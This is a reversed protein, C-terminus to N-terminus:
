GAAHAAHEPAQVVFVSVRSWSRAPAPQRQYGPCAPVVQRLGSPAGSGSATAVPLGDVGGGPSSSMGTNRSRRGQRGVILTCVVRDLRGPVAVHKRQPVCGRCDNALPNNGFYDSRARGTVHGAARRRFQSDLALTESWLLHPVIFQRKSYPALRKRVNTFYRFSYRARCKARWFDGSCNCSAM